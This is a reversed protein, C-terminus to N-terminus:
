IFLGQGEDFVRRWFLLNKNTGKFKGRKGFIEGLKEMFEPDFWEWGNAVIV